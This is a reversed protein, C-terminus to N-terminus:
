EVERSSRHSGKHAKAYKEQDELIMRKTDGEFEEERAIKQSETTQLGNTDATKRWSRGRLNNPSLHACEQPASSDVSFLLNESKLWFLRVPM